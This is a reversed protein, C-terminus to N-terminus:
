SDRPSPSTYLLCTSVGCEQLLSELAQMSEVDLARAWFLEYVRDIFRHLRTPHTAKVWLITKHVLRTDWIKQTGLVRLPPRRLNAYRRCDMYSYRVANWQAGTRTEKKTATRNLSDGHWGNKVTHGGLYSPIDLSFPLWNLRVWFDRELTRIPDIALYAYPSKVDIYVDLQYLAPKPSLTQAVVLPKEHQWCMSPAITDPLHFEVDPLVAENRGCGLELLRARVLSLSVTGAFRHQEACERESGVLLFPSQFVGRRKALERVGLIEADLEASDVEFGPVEGMSGTEWLERSAATLMELAAGSSLRGAMLILRLGPQHDHPFSFGVLRRGTAAASRVSTRWLNPEKRQQHSTLGNQASPTNPNPTHHFSRSGVRSEFPLITLELNFDRVLNCLHPLAHYCDLSAIDLYVVVPVAQRAPDLHAALVARRKM